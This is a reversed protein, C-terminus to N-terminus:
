AFFEEMLRRAKVQFKARLIRMACKRSSVLGNGQTARKLPRM